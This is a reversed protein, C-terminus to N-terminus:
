EFLREVAEKSNRWDAEVKVRLDLYAKPPLEKVVASGVKKLVEGKKGVVIARQSERETIIECRIYPWEWVTVRTSISYPLEQRMVQLLRERVMEAVREGESLDSFMEEPYYRPGSPMRDALYDTLLEVGEGTRASLPFYAQADLASVASLQKLVVARSVKDIKSVVVVLDSGLMSAVFRDGHGFPACADVLLCAVDVDAATSSAAANQRHGLLTRPKNVGPTDVFVIQADPRNLVGRVPRRTTQPKDSVISIKRGCLRNLLTSKGANPRGLLAAFGSRFGEQGGGAGRPEGAEGGGRAEGPEGAGGAGRAEGSGGGDRPEGAGGSM